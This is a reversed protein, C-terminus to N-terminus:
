IWEENHEAALALETEASWEAAEDSTEADPEEIEIQAPKHGRLTALVQMAIDSDSEFEITGAKGELALGIREAKGILIDDRREDVGNLQLWYASVTGTTGIRYLRDEIQEADGPTWPRDLLIITQSATLTVGVGGAKTLIMVKSQGSQFRAKAAERADERGDEGTLMEGGLAAHLKHVVDLFETYLVVQGGEELVEQAMEIATTVKALSSAHMVHGFEVLAWSTDQILGAAVRQDYIKELAALKGEYAALEQADLEVRRLIRMKPPLDLCDKKKRRLIIDQTREHWEELNTAGSVDWHMNARDETRGSKHRVPHREFHGNCYREQYKKRNFALSHRVAYLLPYTNDPRGNKMPTGTCMFAAICNEDRALDRIKESRGSKWNQAYHAEDAILIFSKGPESPIKAWSFIEVQVQVIAAAKRWDGKVMAPSVVFIRVGFHKALGKAAVLTEITKGLGMDDANIARRHEIMWRVGIRQHMFLTKTPDGPLPADLDPGLGIAAIIAETENRAAAAKTDAAAQAAARQQEIDAPLAVRDAGFKEIFISIAKELVVNDFVWGGVSKDFHADGEDRLKRCVTLYKDFDGQETRKAIRAVFTLAQTEISVIHAPANTPTSSATTVVPQAPANELIEFVNEAIAFDESLAAVVAHANSAPVNWRPDQWDDPFFVRGPLDKIREMFDPNDKDKKPFRIEIKNTTPNYRVSRPNDPVDSADVTYGYGELQAAYKILLQAAMYREADTLKSAQSKEALIHGRKADPANFGAGDRRHAGDCVGALVQLATEVKILETGNGQVM